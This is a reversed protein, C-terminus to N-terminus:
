YRSRKDSLICWCFGTSAGGSDRPVVLIRRVDVSDQKCKCRSVPKSRAPTAPQDSEAVCPPTLLCRFHPIPRPISGFAFSVVVVFLCVSLCVFLSVFLFYVLLFCFLIINWLHNQLEVIWKHFGVVSPAGHIISSWEDHREMIWNPGITCVYQSLIDLILFGRWFWWPILVRINVIHSLSHM